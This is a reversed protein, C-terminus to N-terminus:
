PGASRPPRTFSMATAPAPVTIYTALVPPSKLVTFPPEVQSDSNSACGIVARLVTAIAGESGLVTHTPVPSGTEMLWLIGVGPRPTKRDASPPACQDGFPRRSESYMPRMAM